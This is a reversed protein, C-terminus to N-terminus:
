SLILEQVAKAVAQRNEAAQLMFGGRNVRPIFLSSGIREQTPLGWQRASRLCVVAREGREAAPFLEKQAWGVAMRSSPLAILFNPDKYNRSHYAALDLIAVSGAAQGENIGFQKILKTWYAHATRHDRESPLPQTGTRQARYWEVGSPDGAHELDFL